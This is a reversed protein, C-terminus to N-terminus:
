GLAEALVVAAAAAAQVAQVPYLFVRDVLEAMEQMVRLAAGVAVRLVPSLAALVVLTHLQVLMQLALIDGAGLM